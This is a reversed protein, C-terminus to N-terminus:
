LSVAEKLVEDRLYPSLSSETVVHVQSGLLDELDQKIAVLDLLSGSREMELLIDLDSSETATGRAISGFLRVNKGGYRVAISLIELRKEKVADDIRMKEAGESSMM